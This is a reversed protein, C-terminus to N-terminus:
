RGSPLLHGMTTISLELVFTERELPINEKLVPVISIGDVVKLNNQIGVLDLVTPLIDITAVPQDSDRGPKIKGKWSILMPVRIGGEYLWGKGHKLPQQSASKELGGNDSILVVITNDTLKDQHLCDM